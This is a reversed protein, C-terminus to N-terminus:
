SSAQRFLVRSIQLRLKSGKEIGLIKFVDGKVQLHFLNGGARRLQVLDGEAVQAPSRQHQLEDLSLIAPPDAIDNIGASSPQLPKQGNSRFAAIRVLKLLFPLFM